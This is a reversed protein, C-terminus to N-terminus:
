ESNLYVAKDKFKRPADKLLRIKLEHPLITYNQLNDVKVFRADLPISEDGEKETEGNQKVTGGEYDCLFFFEMHHKTGGFFDNYYIIRNVDVQANTEEKVKRKVAEHISEGAEVAGGPPVWYSMNGQEHKVLLISSRNQVIAAVRPILEM